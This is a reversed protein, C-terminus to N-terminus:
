KSFSVTLYVSSYGRAPSSTALISRNRMPVEDDPDSLTGRSTMQPRTMVDMTNAVDHSTKARNWPDPDGISEPESYEGSRSELRLVREDYKKRQGNKERELLSVELEIQQKQLNQLITIQRNLDDKSPTSTELCRMVHMRQRAIRQNLRNMTKNDRLIDEDRQALTEQSDPRNQLFDDESLVGSDCKVGNQSDGDCKSDRQHDDCSSESLRESIEPNKIEQVDDINHSSIEKVEQRAEDIEENCITQEKSSKEKSSCEDSSESKRRTLFAATEPFLSRLEPSDAAATHFTEATEVSTPVEPPLLSLASAIKLKMNCADQFSKLDCSSVGEEIRSSRGDPSAPLARKLNLSLNQKRKLIDQLQDQTRKALLLKKETIEQGEFQPLIM